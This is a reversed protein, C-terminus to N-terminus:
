LISFVLTRTFNRFYVTVSPVAFILVLNKLQYLCNHPYLCLFHCFPLSSFV